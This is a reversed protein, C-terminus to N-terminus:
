LMVKDDVNTEQVLGNKDQDQAHQINTSKDFCHFVDYKMPIWGKKFARDAVFSVGIITAFSVLMAFTKHPFLQGVDEDYYPFKIAALIKLLHEGSAVRILFALVFGCLSGYTNAIKVWLVCTLQPFQIVYMMDACLVYLGYVSNVTIALITGIIGVM